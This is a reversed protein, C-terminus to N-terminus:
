AGKEAPKLVWAPCPLRRVRDRAAGGSRPAFCGWGTSSSTRPSSKGPVLVPIRPSLPRDPRRGGASCSRSPTTRTMLLPVLEGATSPTGPCTARKPLGPFRRSRSGARWRPARPRHADARRLPALSARTTGITLLLTLTHLDIERGPHQLPRLARAAPGRRLRLELDRGSQRFRHPRAATACERERLLQWRLRAHELRPDPACRRGSVHPAVVDTGEIRGRHV